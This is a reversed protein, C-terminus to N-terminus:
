GALFAAVKAIGEVDSVNLVSIRKDIRKVLGALVKGPGIELAKTVGAAALAEVTRVWQVPADIQRLLLEAVRAPDDNPAGDVNAVVPFDFRRVAAASLAPALQAAAPRMLACHFPASVKLPTLKGGRKQALEKARDVARAHGAIVIQGPSNFNAPSLVDGEAADACLLIVGDADMGMVAGMGGEGAPVAEQMAQGRVRTLRVADEVSLVGAACLASYEGLSHGAAFSPAPLAPMTERLAALIAMSTAVLAPQTNATLTLAEMPGAFCIESLKDGLAADARAFVDRAAASTEALARGMGVEQAGQGPFLWAITV